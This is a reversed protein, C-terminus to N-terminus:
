LEIRTKKYGRWREKFRVLRDANVSREELNYIVREYPLYSRITLPSKKLQEGIKEISLGKGKLERVRRYMETDYCGGTILLKRVKMPPLEFEDATENITPEGMMIEEWKQNGPRHGRLAAHREEEFDDYVRGFYSCIKQVLDAQVAKSDYGPKKPKMTKGAGRYAVQDRYEVRESYEVWGRGM